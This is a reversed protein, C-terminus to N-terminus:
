SYIGITQGADGICSCRSIILLRKAEVRAGATGTVGVIGIAIQLCIGVFADGVNILPKFKWGEFNLM